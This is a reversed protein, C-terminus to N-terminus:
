HDNDDDYTDVIFLRGDQIWSLINVLERFPSEM